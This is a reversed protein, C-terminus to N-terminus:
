ANGGEAEPSNWYVFGRKRGGYRTFGFEGIRYAFKLLPVPAFGTDKCFELYLMHADKTHIRRREGEGTTNMDWYRAFATVSDAPAIPSGGYMRKYADEVQVRGSLNDDAMAEELLFANWLAMEDEAIVIFKVGSIDYTDLKGRRMWQRVTNEEVGTFKSYIKATTLCNHFISGYKLFALKLRFSFYEFDEKSVSEFEVDMIEGAAKTYYAIDGNVLSQIMVSRKIAIDAVYEVSMMHRVIFERVDDTSVYTRPFYMPDRETKRKEGRVRRDFAGNKWRIGLNPDSILGHLDNQEEM